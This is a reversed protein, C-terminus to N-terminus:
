PVRPQWSASRGGSALHVQNSGDATITYIEYADSYVIRSSDPSWSVGSIWDSDAAVLRKLDSGDPAITCLVEQSSTVDAFAIRSGDPSWAPYTVCDGGGVRGLEILERDALRIISLGCELVLAIHLGDPSWTPWRGESLDYQNSGDANM